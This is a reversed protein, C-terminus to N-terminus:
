GYSPRRRQALNSQSFSCFLFVLYASIGGDKGTSSVDQNGWSRCIWHLPRGHYIALGSVFHFGDWPSSNM